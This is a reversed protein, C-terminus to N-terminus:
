YIQTFSKQNNKMGRYMGETNFPMAINGKADVAILGGEGGLKKIRKNIVEEAAKQLSLGKYEIRCSVDHAAVSRIFFEGHGTCSVACTANNAYTGAGIMPSDGIRGWAKNTMGGTSTAAAVHGNADIAVAGVTGFKHDSNGSHDLKVEGSDKVQQWQEYRRQNDFYSAPKFDMNQQRAFDLAEEGSLFVFSTHKMVANALLIPNKVGQIGCVAGANMETGEMIAADMEHEGKATYVSGKGANFLECDELIRVAQTVTELATSTNALMEFGTNLAKQLATHYKKKIEPKQLSKSITGSGGHVAITPLSM